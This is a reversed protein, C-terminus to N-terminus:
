EQDGDDLLDGLDPWLKATILRVARRVKAADVPDPNAHEIVDFGFLVTAAEDRTLSIEDPLEVLPDDPVPPCAVDCSLM